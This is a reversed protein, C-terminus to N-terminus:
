FPPSLREEIEKLLDEYHTIGELAPICKELLRKLQGEATFPQEEPSKRLEPYKVWREFSIGVERNHFSCELGYNKYSEIDDFTADYLLCEACFEVSYFRDGVEFVNTYNGKDFGVFNITNMTVEDDLPFYKELFALILESCAQNYLKWEYNIMEYNKM